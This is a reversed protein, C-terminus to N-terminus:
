KEPRRFYLSDEVCGVFMWGQKGLDNMMEEQHMRWDPGTVRPVIKYQWRTIQQATCCGALSLGSLGIIFWRWLKTKM